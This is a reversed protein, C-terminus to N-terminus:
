NEEPFSAPAAGAIANNKDSESKKAMRYDNYVSTTGAIAIAVKIMAELTPSWMRIVTIAFIMIFALFAVIYTVYDYLAPYREVIGQAIKRIHPGAGMYLLNSPDLPDFIFEM